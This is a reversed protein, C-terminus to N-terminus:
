LYTCYKFAPNRVKDNWVFFVRFIEFFVKQLLSPAGICLNGDKAILIPQLSQVAWVLEFVSVRYIQFISSQDFFLAVPKLLTVEFTLGILIPLWLVIM